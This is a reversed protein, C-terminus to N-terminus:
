HQLTHLSIQQLILGLPPLTTEDTAVYKLGLVKKLTAFDIEFDGDQTIWIDYWDGNVLLKANRTNVLSGGSGIFGFGMAAKNTYSGEFGLICNSHDKSYHRMVEGIDTDDLRDEVICLGPSQLRASRIADAVLETSVFNQEMIIHTGM